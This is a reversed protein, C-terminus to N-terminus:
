YLYFIVDNTDRITEINSNKLCSGKFFQFFESDGDVLYEGSVHNYTLSRMVDCPCERVAEVLNKLSFADYFCSNDSILVIYDDDGINKKDISLINDISLGIDNSVFRFNIKNDFMSILDKDINNGVINVEVDDLYDQMIISSFLMSMNNHKSSIYIKIM